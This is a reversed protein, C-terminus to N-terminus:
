ENFSGSLEEQLMQEYIVPLADTMVNPEIGYSLSTWVPSLIYLVQDIEGARLLEALDVGWASSDSLWAYVVADQFEPAFSYNEWFLLKQPQPHYLRAKELWTSTLFQYRGAATTCDGLNPGALIPLCRDPHQNFDHIRDGGYLLSYPQSSNSESASITRMLARIHPDGGQMVLPTPTQEWAPDTPSRGLWRFPEGTVILGIAVIGSLLVLWDFAGPKRATSRPTSVPSLTAKSNSDTTM